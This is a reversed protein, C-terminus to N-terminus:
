KGICFKEFIHRLLDESTRRGRIEQLANAAEQLDLLPFEESIGQDLAATARVLSARAGELLAAHRVNTITPRDRFSEGAGLASSLASVLADIGEGTRVSVPTTLFGDPSVQVGTPLTGSTPFSRESSLDRGLDTERGSARERRPTEERRLSLVEWAATLDCKNVIILRPRGETAVLLARDDDELPRSRDLVVLVLDAVELTQRARAVGEQEVEDVTERVGATDILALSLGGIEARETLLDRTTGPVATVIARNANLLTNFLSSKGVNPAGVIAVQAGERILRGRAAQALLTDIRGLLKALSESAERPGVFHYGEDPFDLSAELRAMVEFLDTEIGAIALTLTGELQDFAARAQLPTVADILDAVAEAQILDLKGNLFARLTFEGPEALRAGAEMSARLIAALVVPSGHASIEAVHEGTYSSPAPFVTVVVQDGTTIQRSSVTQRSDPLFRAFTARRATFPKTRGVLDGAIRASDPGSLRVVGLGGRGAPTAIAVITDSTSFM